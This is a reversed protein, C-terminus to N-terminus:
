VEMVSGMVFGMVSCSTKSSGYNVLPNKKEFNEKSFTSEQGFIKSKLVRLIGCYRKIDYLCNTCDVLATTAM